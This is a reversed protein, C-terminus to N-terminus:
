SVRTLEVINSGNFIDINNEDVIKVTFSVTDALPSTCDLRFNDGNKYFAYTDRPSFFNCNMGDFVIIAGKQAQGFTYEGVNKWKGVISYDSVNLYSKQTETEIYETTEEVATPEDTPQETEKEPPSETELEISISQAAIETPENVQSTSCGVLCCLFISAMISSLLKRM